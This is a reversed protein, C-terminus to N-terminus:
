HDEPDPAANDPRIFQGDEYTIHSPIFFKQPYNAEFFQLIFDRFELPADYHDVSNSYILKTSRTVPKGNSLLLPKLYLGKSVESDIRIIPAITWGLGAKVMQPISTVAESYLINKQPKRFIDFWWNDIIQLLSPDYRFSLYVNDYLAQETIPFPSLIMLPETLLDISSVSKFTNESRIIALMIDDHAVMRQLESSPRALFRVSVNPHLKLFSSLVEPMITGTFARSCGFELLGAIDDGASAADAIANAYLFSIESSHSSLRQGASTLFVGKKCKRFLNVGVESEMKDLRYLVSSLSMHILNAVVTANPIDNLLSIIKWDLQDM